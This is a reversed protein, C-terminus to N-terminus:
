IGIRSPAATLHTLLLDHGESLLALEVLCLYRTFVHPAADFSALAMQRWFDRDIRLVNWARPDHALTRMVLATIAVAMRTTEGAHGRTRAHADLQQVLSGSVLKAQILRDYSTRAEYFHARLFQESDACMSNYSDSTRIENPLTHLHLSAHVRRWAHEEGRLLSDGEVALAVAPWFRWLAEIMGQTLGDEWGNDSPLSVGLPPFRPVDPQAAAWHVIRTLQRQLTELKTHSQLRQAMVAVGQSIEEDTIQREQQLLEFIAIQMIIHEPSSLEYAHQPCAVVIVQAIARQRGLIGYVVARAYAAGDPTLQAMSLWKEIKDRTYIKITHARKLVRGAEVRAENRAARLRECENATITDLFTSAVLLHQLTRRDSSSMDPERRIIDHIVERPAARLRHFLQEIAEEGSSITTPFPRTRLLACLVDLLVDAESQQLQAVFVRVARSFITPNTSSALVHEAWARIGNDRTQLYAHQESPTGLTLEFTGPSGADPRVGRSPRWPDVLVMEALYVGPSLTEDDVIVDFADLATDPIAWELPVDWPRWAPWLRLMRHHLAAGGHWRFSLLWTTEDRLSEVTLDIINLNHTFTLVPLRLTAARGPLGTVELECQVISQHSARITDAAALLDFRLSDSAVRQTPELYQPLRDEAYSVILRGSLLTSQVPPAITAILRPAAAQDLWARPRTLVQNGSSEFYGHADTTAWCLAPLPITIDIMETSDQRDIVRLALSRRDAPALLRYTGPRIRFLQTGFDSTEIHLHKATEIEVAVDPLRGQADPVRVDSHGTITLKPVLTIACAMDRGRGLPGRVSIDFTGLPQTGILDLASLPVSLCGDIVSIDPALDSLIHTTQRGTARSTIILRWRMQEAQPDSREPLPILINPPTGIYLPPQDKLQLDAIGPRDLRSRLAEVSADIPICIDGVSITEATRLDWCDARYAGWFGPFSGSEELLIGGTSHLTDATRYLLWLVKAPLTSRWRVLQNTDADFALLPQEASIGAFSWTQALSADDCSFTVDYRQAPAEVALQIPETEWGGKRHWAFVPQRYQSGDATISWACAATAATSLQQAPLSLMPGDGYPDFCLQPRLLPASIISLETQVSREVWQRYRDIIRQPLGSVIASPLRQTSAYERALALCREIFDIAIEGGYDLFYLIPKDIFYHISTAYTWEDILTDADMHILEPYTAAPFIIYRFFDDLCYDPIGGHLLIVSVYRLSQERVEPFMPLSRSRLFREFLQGLEWGFRTARQADLGLVQHVSPWYTGQSYGAIGQAVLFVAACTRYDRDILHLAESQGHRRILDRLLGGLEAAMDPTLDLEGLLEINETSSRLFAEWAPLGGYTPQASSFRVRLASTSPHSTAM